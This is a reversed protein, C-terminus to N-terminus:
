NPTYVLSKPISFQHFGEPGSHYGFGSSKHGVWPCGVDM